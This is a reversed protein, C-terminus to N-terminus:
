LIFLIQIYDQILIKVVHFAIIHPHNIGIVLNIEIIAIDPYNVRITHLDGFEFRGIVQFIYSLM